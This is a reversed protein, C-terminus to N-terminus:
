PQSTRSSAPRPAQTAGPELTLARSLQLSSRLVLAEQEPEFRRSPSSPTSPSRPAAGAMSADTGHGLGRALREIAQRTAPNFGAEDMFRRADEPRNQVLLYLALNSRVKPHQPLLQSAQMIPLRADDYRQAMILAFGLDSLLLGDTPSAQRAQEFHSVAEAYRGQAGAILGLGRWGAARLSSRTLQEYLRVSADLQETQRLAEARLLRSDDSAGWRQELADIHALSAYWMGKDQMQRVLAAHTAPNELSPTAPPDSRNDGDRPPVACGGLALAFALALASLSAGRIPPTHRHTSPAKINM